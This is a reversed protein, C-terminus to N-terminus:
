CRRVSFNYTVLKGLFYSLWHTVVQRSLNLILFGSEHSIQRTAASLLESFGTVSMSHAWPVLFVVKSTQLRHSQPWKCLTVTPFQPVVCGMKLVPIGRERQDCCVMIEFPISLSQQKYWLVPFLVTAFYFSLFCNNILCWCIGCM